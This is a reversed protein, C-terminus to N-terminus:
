GVSSSARDFSLVAVPGDVKRRGDVTTRGRNEPFSPIRLRRCCIRAAKDLFALGHDGM